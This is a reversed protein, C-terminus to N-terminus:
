GLDNVSVPQQSPAAATAPRTFQGQHHLLPPEGVGILAQIVRGVVLDHDGVTVLSHRACVLHTTADALLPMGALGHRWQTPPGFRDEGKRAFRAALAQQGHGM